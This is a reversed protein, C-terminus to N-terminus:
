APEAMRQAMSGFSYSHLHAWIGLGKQFPCSKRNCNHTGHKSHDICPTCYPGVLNAQSNSDAHSQCGEMLWRNLDHIKGVERDRNHACPPGFFSASPWPPFPHPRGGHIRLRACSKQASVGNLDFRTPRLDDGERMWHAVQPNRANLTYEHRRGTADSSSTGSNWVRRKNPEHTISIFGVSRRLNSAACSTRVIGPGAASTPVLRLAAIRRRLQGSGQPLEYRSRLCHVRRGHAAPQHAQRPCSSAHM